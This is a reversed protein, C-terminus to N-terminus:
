TPFHPAPGGGPEVPTPTPHESRSGATLLLVGALILALAFVKRADMSEGLILWGLIAGTAPAVCFAIPKVQSVAGFTLALYFCVMALAGAILGSGLVLKTMTAGDAALWGRPEPGSGAIGNRALLWVLWIVPLAVLSRVAIATLPGVKGSHLVSKTCVEGVGWALGAILALLIPKM